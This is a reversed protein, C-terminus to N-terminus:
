ILDIVNMGDKGKSKNNLVIYPFALLRMWSNVDNKEVLSNIVKGLEECVAIRVSKQIIRTLPVSVSCKNLLWGFNELIESVSLGDSVM